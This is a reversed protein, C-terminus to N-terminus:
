SSEPLDVPTAFTYTKGSSSTVHTEVRGQLAPGSNELTVKVPIWLYSKCYGDCGAQATMKVGEQGQVSSVPALNILVILMILTLRFLLALTIRLNFVRM